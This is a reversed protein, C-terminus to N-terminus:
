GRKQRFYDAIGPFLDRMRSEKGDILLKEVDLLNFGARTGEVTIQRDLYRRASRWGFDLFWYGGGAVELVYGYRQRRLIGEVIYRDGMPM